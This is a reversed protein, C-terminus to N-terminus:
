PLHRLNLRRLLSHFGKAPIGPLNSALKYDGEVPKVVYAVYERKKEWMVEKLPRLKMGSQTPTSAVIEEPLDQLRIMNSNVRRSSAFSCQRSPLISSVSRTSFSHEM